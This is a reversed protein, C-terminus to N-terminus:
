SSGVGRDKAASGGGTTTGVARHAAPELLWRPCAMPAATGRHTARGAALRQRLNKTIQIDGFGPVGRTDM